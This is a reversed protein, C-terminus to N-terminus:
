NNLAIRQLEAGLGRLRQTNYASHIEAGDVFYDEISLVEPFKLFSSTDCVADGWDCMEVTSSYLTSPYSFDNMRLNPVSPFGSLASDQIWDNFELAAFGIFTASVGDHPEATGLNQRSMFSSRLPDALLAVGDIRDLLDSDTAELYSVAAHIAWAGQSYGGLLITQGADGCEEVATQLQLVLRVAGDWAGPTYNAVDGVQQWANRGSTGVIPVPNAEYAIAVKDFTADDPVDVGVWDSTLGNYIDTVKPGLGGTEGSGRLGIFLYDACQDNVRVPETAPPQAIPKPIPAGVWPYYSVLNGSVQPNGDVGPGSTAGWDIHRADFPTSSSASVGTECGRLTGAFRGSGDSDVSVCTSGARDIRTNTADLAGSSILPGSAYLIRAHQLSAAGGTRIHIGDWDGTAPTTADGDGNTDGGATDDRLSTFVVPNAATGNVNLTGEVDLSTYSGPHAKIVQGAAVNMTAGPAVTLPRVSSNALGLPLGGLPVSTNTTLTGGLTISNIKNGTGSNDRLLSGDLADGSVSIAASTNSDAGSNTVTNNAVTPVPIQTGSGQPNGTADVEIGSYRARTVTSDSVEVIASGADIGSRDVQVSVGTGDSDHSTSHRFRFVDADGSDVRGYGVTTYDFTARAEPRISIGDWDGTAPTTADGDGNTDGGATDDRLSTFVVPNAATGNVNLTGEVDLSTYSGPHAKIVQGAAVNMTAGPAVTLPRVSSNALGLPLGGLPVSTNTTLTGGLTISNIKNGTGSNDRLLSGDLADGSVSIAASTNSDAGSNTVTNNAVTPVPIQTGSGQPNGTADVEIGSYRARTVTSDSVEVIASGADIGSRDVQVSVGTGDSDHSTSHRFRFVDADGSDVRGYGVTTYDFTARAEPRISIGDWDGTAPTTADGDGNTDGGATDDRLSTFVVPNAATGNVNLTGEVDLSTYSGPHAKIVQGAAVNMTAGPAVTLPRVSSNALGLPLGGLPVSTNTTLTGGLTISNIKNGTGSNDRLLSGDLADGSVSIAASTNSDAGSNTVTNNAVTPVPIQTGSGQPNGTADVEIGSYRARTVTSDSVEVIASGADIGSRDVQVSVGTGDSDHSTSHRFRFVDADGSDVRGYGVTTYDFTARAEPRISIGDWDGTAPTTADGDGNTDGGATDDRLSTFVVPNAATGNVNLTGEVDLSTYSGPHAKIVQGAAVNMTAGPAVTLPRVSSNALGLPLGGLPVSTNTTLTGGLTISNIKNGTGSNDRLLSGDLADGSVSIAASTNSDAGSNTVTNNAVTPVPIQTGSGQPNGTADVEIGSYRARTVTSDSVEVIASGADIGSRDVQVSVGTGDSDHSTSHRFRFVDADGSDVRGYGVTTYDFTARAEPRISIGDWDGTAPTTADGDGNTDGGATDDRLSTFVVPNAATGNVNLTGEVDLSTYSGPHAKIVQGAAVNMTAGPAVTLPRVSSNALGLPLGGLPVSTNTTLTGGLTISNIKNGTGSNDRLLSGDLADGSVSIAASTNSDAGSNTVTNNAVTPVPIQTGSGQPNGTADVEIGSYRARTVTSDSVEVIASGADIGSRDVQVSVGTGDSDHSTSHRFRFVDADGSDVRGYGVTTYDFTARAEPRISIGDWDGTAPTTADGDGNTDGGATDDRLSTFVVPNAATGNVNLTGEVDLSTYSGPHAKIVQGAAVNMTAGPAVTLPRVSSNALGLPLGGLPVSTNTTLTGGLTISNIKNGTGSNDRLLSGDLADGSVSIAASTNSDAGSNTVTNNAVTPVPIQTGSGQPNGTADVEIGSYRARTVTSDSVEVIASGADIGSRDVQVSVGTGDSDHSTSHRFRFVDADGSDVRGYGVTTYDFTARAEPRISIGDWDGTAPTTADGDGNTDGGATDDRLSTFVVPNAATGNVNLTGEVDLSTYSGPHAKIVQGAAVNMTAGPAVTLPRVSSNALGLPLGGLPVSTNTTLTGGLTISNIKNGTGSNDRLLSGDLADGSVSIAASTNSDAGSNTVTNNAVTPVPIQTGSGQPNGTADVEIGSYRARTVTSDSVEVIASGADIGSRDVQVSVGTGDSDHSTSHRFRFVDADGSDVRGYGVTTYDFTARAEPRISIGDWDGTAPTTADGDGNTDGGATDDRLSTFVVPNAATGNVNLTGEVDLGLSNGAGKIVAGAEVTLTRGAPVTLDCTLRHTTAPTWTQDVSLTGCHDVVSSPPSAPTAPSANSRASENGTDDISTIAFWYTTGNTLGTADYGTATNPIATLKAWPGNATPARYVLYGDLDSATVPSWALGVHGNGPTAVVGTPVAPPTTDLVAAPTGQGPASKASENGTDDISTIAFWYTTGNTLGTADYGTATNPIATLKAWPGNATPARYVLYGDLDSATVPSWALGVHGNGPTAVVGTPVAPPTIDTPPTATVELTRPATTVASAGNFPATMARFDFSGVAETPVLFKAGGVTSQPATAVQEWGRPTKM